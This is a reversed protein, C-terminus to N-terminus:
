NTSRSINYITYHLSLNGLYHMSTQKKELNSVVNQIKRFWAGSEWFDQLNM